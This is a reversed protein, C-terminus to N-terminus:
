YETGISYQFDLIEAFKGPNTQAFRVPLKPDSFALANHTLGFGLFYIRVIIKIKPLFKQFFSVFYDAIQYIHDINAINKQFKSKKDAM